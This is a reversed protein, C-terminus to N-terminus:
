PCFMGSCLNKAYCRYPEVKRTCAVCADMRLRCVPNNSLEDWELRCANGPATGCLEGRDADSLSDFITRTVVRGSLAGVRESMHPKWGAFQSLDAVQNGALFRPDSPCKADPRPLAVCAGSVAQCYRPGPCDLGVCSEGGVAFCWDPRARCAADNGDAYACYRRQPYHQLDCASCLLFAAVGAVRRLGRETM